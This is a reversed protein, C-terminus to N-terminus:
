LDISGNVKTNSSAPEDFDRVRQRIWSGYEKMDLWFTVIKDCLIERTCKGVDRKGREWKDELM